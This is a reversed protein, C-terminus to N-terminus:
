LGRILILGLQGTYVVSQESAGTQNAQRLQNIEEQLKAIIASMGTESTSPAPTKETAESIVVSDGGEM